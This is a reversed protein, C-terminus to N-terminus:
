ANEIQESLLPLAPKIEVYHLGHKVEKFTQENLHQLRSALLPFHHRNFAMQHNPHHCVLNQHLPHLHELIIV